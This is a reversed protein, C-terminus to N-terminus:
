KLFEKGSGEGPIFKRYDNIGSLDYGRGLTQDNATVASTDGTATAQKDNKAGKTEDLDEEEASANSSNESLDDDLVNGISGREAWKQTRALYSMYTMNAIKQSM